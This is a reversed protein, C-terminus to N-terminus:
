TRAWTSAPAYAAGNAQLATGSLSRLGNRTVSFWADVPAGHFAWTSGGAAAKRRVFEHERAEDGCLLALQLAQPGGANIQGADRLPRLTHRSSVLVFRLVQVPMESLEYQRWQQEAATRAIQGLKPLWETRRLLARLSTECACSALVSPPPM